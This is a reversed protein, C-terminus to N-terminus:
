RALRKRPAQTPATGPRVLWERAARVGAKLCGDLPQGSFWGAYFGGRFADGAGTVHRAAIPRGVAAEQTGARSLARAGRPGLTVVVLPVLDLLDRPRRLGLKKTIADIEAVNGFLIESGEVFSRLDRSGWRYHVEQAPDASVPRGQRRAESLVRLQYAPDGTTLHVWRSQAILRVPVAASSADAMAGQDILTMQSGRGDELVLCSPTRAGAVKTLGSLRVRADFLRARFEPPFDEGVLSALGTRVGYRAACIAITAATGGLSRHSGLMPVTRDPTPLEAVDIFRDINTHGVVLLDFRHVPAVPGYPMPDSLDRTPYRSRSDM